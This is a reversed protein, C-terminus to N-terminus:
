DNKTLILFLLAIVVPEFGLILYILLLGLLFVGNKLNKDM